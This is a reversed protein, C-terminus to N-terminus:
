EVALLDPWGTADLVRDALRELRGQDAIAKIAAETAADPPGFRKRGQVLIVKQMGEARGKGLLWQYTTSDELINSLSM